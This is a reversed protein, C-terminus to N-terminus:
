WSYKVTYTVVTESSAAVSVLFEVTKSDKKTFANSNQIIKWNTWRYLPEVINVEVPTDKSNKVIIKFSEEASSGSVKYNTQIREGTIDFANGIYISLKADKATHDINDEGIFEMSDGDYKNARVRGKPLPIGLNNEKSNKFDLNVTVKKGNNVGNYTFVKKIPIKSASIFEIQKIENNKITSKRQLEYIHYEFFSKEQFSPAAVDATKAAFYRVENRAMAAPQAINVDGAILKLKADNFSAGSNNNVTVWGAIDAVTDEENTVLVYDANWSIGSTQYSVEMKETGATESDVLWVLTPKLRLGEPLKSLSIEGQPNIVIKDSSQVVLGGQVSLLKGTLKARKDTGTREVEINEGIYKTFLKNTNVLDYDFNQELVKVSSNNLFKPLVSTPDINSAVSDFELTQVGKKLTINRVERVLARNNNYVTVAVEAYATTTSSLFIVALIFASFRKM